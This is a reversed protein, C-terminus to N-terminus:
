IWRIFLALVGSLIGKVIEEFDTVIDVEVCPICKKAFTEADEPLDQEKVAFFATM